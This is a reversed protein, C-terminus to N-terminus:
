ASDKAALREAFKAFHLIDECKGDVLEQGARVGDPVMGSQSMIRIMATNPRVAGGTVKRLGRRFLYQMLTEWADRGLGKGQSQRGVLIGMDATGHRPSVYATMTGVYDQNRYIALFLNPGERFSALYSLCSEATHERYRQNSFRMLTKDNLWGIYDATINAPGFARLSVARGTALVTTMGERKAEGSM